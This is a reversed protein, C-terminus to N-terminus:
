GCNRKKRLLRPTSCRFESAGTVVAATGGSASAVAAEAAFRDSIGMPAVASASAHLVPDHAPGASGTIIWSLALLVTTIFHM